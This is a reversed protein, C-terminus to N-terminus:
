KVEFGAAGIGARVATEVASHEVVLHVRDASHDASVRRVGDLRGLVRELREECARCDMGTVTLTIEEMGIVEKGTPDAKAHRYV